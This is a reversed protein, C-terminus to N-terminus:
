RSPDLVRRAADEIADLAADVDAQTTQAQATHMRLTFRDNVRTHSLYASGSANVTSLLAENLADAREHSWAPRHLRFCVLGLAASGILVIDQHETLRGAARAALRLGERLRSRLGEVGFTRLVFWLKLARFRRGLPIGWDRFNVVHPDHSTKLYEPDIACTRLLLDTDKVFHATCEFNTFLWKHPNFVFSDAHETGDLIRRMEPLVALSGAFAADVHLFVGFERCIEAIAPVPDVATTSTTGVTAVVAAPILGQDLDDRILHRLSSPDLALTTDVPVRRLHDSGIGSLFVAKEVSSHAESSAYVRLGAAGPAAAGQTRFRGGTARERAMLIAVLTASSATDQICGTYGQELGLLDRLWVMTAQELETAAPSTQWSMCQAGLAATVMEALISPESNNAPFYAFFRPHNWHTMGPLVVDLFDGWIRDFPEPDEPPAPPIRHAVNGPAVAPLVPRQRITDRYEAMWAVIRQAADSFSPADM